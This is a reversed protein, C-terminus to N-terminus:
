EGAKLGTAEAIERVAADLSSKVDKGAIVNQILEKTAKSSDLSIPGRHLPQIEEAVKAFMTYIAFGFYDDSKQFEQSKYIPTYAPFLGHKLAIAEGEDTNECFKVFEIAAEKHRSNAAIAVVSGGANAARVGGKEIAPLPMIKWKGKQDPLSSSINGAFWVGYPVAAIQSRKMAMLRGDWDGVNKLVGEKIMRQMLEMAKQGEASNLVITKDDQSVYHGGAQNLLQDYFDTDEATGLMVTEGGTAASLKKGAAILDEWTEIEDVKIGAKDFLDSRYFLAAPGMDTPVGYIKGDKTVAEWSAPVFRDRSDEFDSSLDLFADENRNLFTSFDRNQFVMVDPLDTGATLRPMIRTYSSDVTQVDVKIDPHVKEFAAAQERFTDAATNWGVVTIRTSREAQKGCGVALAALMCVMILCMLRRLRKQM